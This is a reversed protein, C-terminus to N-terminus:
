SNKFYYDILKQANDSEIVMRLGFISKAGMRQYYPILRNKADFYIYGDMGHDTSFKCCLAILAKGIGSYLPAGRKNFRSTEMNACELIGPTPRFAVLGQVADPEYYVFMKYIIYDEHLSLFDFDFLDTCRKIEEKTAPAAIANCKQGSTNSTFASTLTYIKNM